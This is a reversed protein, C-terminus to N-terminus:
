TSTIYDRVVRDSITSIVEWSITNYIKAIDEVTILNNDWIYVDTGDEVEGHIDTVDVMFCDMCVTGVIPALQNNIVVHGRNSMCRRIGDAYGIPVTAIVSPRETIFTRGYSISTGPNVKKIFSIKSKLKTVPKLSIKNKLNESPYYGYLLLGPRVMNFHVQPYNLIAASSCCHIYKLNPIENKVSDVAFKFSSIQKQSYLDDCDACSFHTYIGEISVNPYKKAENVYEIARSPNIGTRGMGTGIEMHIRFRKESHKAFQKLFEVSGIGAIIDYKAISDLEHEFPQNLIFIDGNYGLERLRIAEDTIAVGVINVGAKEFIDLRENIKTGYANDKIIPMVTVKPGVFQKIANINHIVNNIDIQLKAEWIKKM